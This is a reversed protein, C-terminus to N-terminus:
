YVDKCSLASQIPHLAFQLCDKHLNCIFYNNIVDTSWFQYIYLELRIFLKYLIKYDEHM